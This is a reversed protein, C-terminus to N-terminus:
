SGCLTQLNFLLMHTSLGLIDVRHLSLRASCTNTNICMYTSYMIMYVCMIYVHVSIWM